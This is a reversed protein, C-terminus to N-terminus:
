RPSRSTFTHQMLEEVELWIAWYIDVQGEELDMTGDNYATWFQKLAPFLM